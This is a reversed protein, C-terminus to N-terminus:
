WHTRACVNVRGSFVTVIEAKDPVIRNWWTATDNLFVVLRSRLVSHSWLRNERGSGNTM